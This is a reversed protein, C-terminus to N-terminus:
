QKAGFLTKSLQAETEERVSECVAEFTLEKDCKEGSLVIGGSFKGDFSLALGRAKVLPLAAFKEKSVPCSQAFIVKDGEEAYRAILWDVFALYQSESMGNMRGIARRYIGDVIEQKVGLIYKNADLTALTEKRQIYQRGEKEALAERTALFESEDKDAREVTEKVYLEAQAKIRECEEAANELIQTVLANNEQNM